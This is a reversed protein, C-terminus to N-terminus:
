VAKPPEEKPAESQPTPTQQAKAQDEIQGISKLFQFCMEKAVTTTIDNDLLFHGIKGEVIAEIRLLNKFM